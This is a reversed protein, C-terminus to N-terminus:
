GSSRCSVRRGPASTASARCSAPPTARRSGSPPRRRASCTSSAEARRRSRPRVLRRAVIPKGTVIAPTHGNFKGYEDMMWAMTQANTNVDPAMIDRNPRAGERGQGHVLTHDKAAGLDRSRRRPLQHRGQGGRLSHGVLATKWTMLMALARVEDLDVEPHYRVGGKYPGRAGNHQVRYGFFVHIKGDSLRVPIQM